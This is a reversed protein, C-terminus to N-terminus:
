TLMRSLHLVRIWSLQITSAPLLQQHFRFIIAESKQVNLLLAIVLYWRRLVAACQSLLALWKKMDGPLLLCLQADDSLLCCVSFNAIFAPWNHCVSEQMQFAVGAM